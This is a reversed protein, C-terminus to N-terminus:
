AISPLKISVVSLKVSRSDFDHSTKKREVSQKTRVITKRRGSEEKVQSNRHSPRTMKLNEAQEQKYGHTYSVPPFLPMRRSYRISKKRM